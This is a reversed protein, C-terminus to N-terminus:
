VVSSKYLMTSSNNVTNSPARGNTTIARCRTNIKFFKHKDPKSSNCGKRCRRKNNICLMFFDMVSRMELMNPMCKLSCMTSPVKDHPPPAAGNGHPFHLLDAMDNFSFNYEENFMRFHITGISSRSEPM